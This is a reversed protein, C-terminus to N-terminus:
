DRPRNESAVRDAQARVRARKDEWKLLTLPVSGLLSFSAVIMFIVAFSAPPGSWDDGIGSTIFRAVVASGAVGASYGVGIITDHNTALVCLGATIVVAGVLAVFWGVLIPGFPVASANLFVGVPVGATVALGIATPTRWSAPPRELSQQTPLMSIRQEKLRVAATEQRSAPKGTSPMMGSCRPFALPEWRKRRWVKIVHGDGPSSKARSYYGMLGPRYFRQLSAEDDVLELTGARRYSVYRWGGKSGDFFGDPSVVLWDKGGDLSILRSQLANANQLANPV